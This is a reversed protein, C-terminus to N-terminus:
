HNQPLNRLLYYTTGKIPVGNKEYKGFGWVDDRKIMLDFLILGFFMGSNAKSKGCANYIPEFDTGTWDNGPIWSSTNIDSGNVRSNLEVYIRKYDEDKLNSMWKDFEKRHPVKKVYKGTDISYLM